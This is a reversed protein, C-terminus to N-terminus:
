HGITEAATTKIMGVRSITNLTVYFPKKVHRLIEIVNSFEADKLRLEILGQSTLENEPLVSEKDYFTLRAVKATKNFCEVLVKPGIHHSLVYYFIHYKIFKKQILAM